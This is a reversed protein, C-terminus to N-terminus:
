DPKSMPVRKVGAFMKDLPKDHGSEDLYFMMNLVECYVAELTRSGPGPGHRLLVASQGPETHQIARKVTLVVEGGERELTVMKNEGVTKVMLVYKGPELKHGACQARQSLTFTGRYDPKAPTPSTMPATGASKYAEPATEAQAYSTAPWLSAAALAAIMWISNLNLSKM